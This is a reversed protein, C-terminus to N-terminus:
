ELKYRHMLFASRLGNKGHFRQRRFMKQAGWKRIFFMSCHNNSRVVSTCKKRFDFNFVYM